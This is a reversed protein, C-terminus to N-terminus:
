QKLKFKALRHTGYDLSVFGGMDLWGFNVNNEKMYENLKRRCKFFIDKEFTIETVSIGNQANGSIKQLAGEIEKEIRAELANQNVQLLM